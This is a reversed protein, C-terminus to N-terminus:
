AGAAEASWHKALGLDAVLPRGGADFIVNEPKLDRHVIGRAHAEALATALSRALRVAEDVGVRGRALRNRLTGGALFPMVLFRVGRTEGSDVLPVFGQAAGLSGLLRIERDFRAVSSPELRELVKIAVDEGGPGRGRLVVGM